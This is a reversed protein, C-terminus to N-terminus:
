YFLFPLFRLLLHRKGDLPKCGSFLMLVHKLFLAFGEITNWGQKSGGLRRKSKQETTLVGSVGGRVLLSPPLPAGLAIGGAVTTVWLRQEM